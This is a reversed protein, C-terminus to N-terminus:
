GFTAVGWAGLNSIATESSIPTVKIGKELVAILRDIDGTTAPQNEEDTEQNQGTMQVIDKVQAMSNEYISSESTDGIYTVGTNSQMGSAFGSIMASSSTTEVDRSELLADM